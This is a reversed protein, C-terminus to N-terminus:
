DIIISEEDLKEPEPEPEPGPEMDDMADLHDEDGVELGYHKDVVTRIKVYQENDLINTLTELPTVNGLFDYFATPSFGSLMTIGRRKGTDVMNQNSGNLNWFILEPVSYPKGWITKLGATSFLDTLEEYVTNNMAGAADFQMDSLILFKMDHITDPDIDNEVIHNLIKEFAKYINTNYGWESKYLKTVRDYLSEGEGFIVWQPNSHFTLCRNRLSGTQMESCALSLAICADIYRAGGSEDYMSGSVDSMIFVNQLDKGMKEMKKKHTDILDRWQLEVVENLMRNEPAEEWSCNSAVYTGVLEHPHLVSGHVKGKGAKCKELHETFNEQCKVRDPDLSRVMKTKKNVNLFADRNKMLCRASVHAPVIDAWEGNCMNKEALNLKDSIRKIYKNWHKYSTYQQNKNNAPYMTLAIIKGVNWYRKGERAAWKSCLSIGDWIGTDGDWKLQIIFMGVIHKIFKNILGIREKVEDINLEGGYWPDKIEKKDELIIDGLINIDQWSGYSNPLYDLVELVLKPSYNYYLEIIFWHCLTKEGKGGKINRTQFCLIFLDGIMKVREDTDELDNIDVIVSRVLGRLDDRSLGRCLRNYLVLLSNVRSESYMLQGNKGRVDYLENNDLSNVLTDM